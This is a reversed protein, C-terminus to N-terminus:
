MQVHHDEQHSSEYVKKTLIPTVIVTVLAVALVQATASGVFPEVAPTTQAVIGPFSADFAAVGNMSAGVVGDNKLVRKDVLILPSM